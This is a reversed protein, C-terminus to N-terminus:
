PTRLAEMGENEQTDLTFHFYDDVDEHKGFFICGPNLMPYNDIDRPDSPIDKMFLPHEQIENWTWVRNDI